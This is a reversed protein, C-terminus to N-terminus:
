FWFLVRVLDYRQGAVEQGLGLRETVQGARRRPDLLSRSCTKGAASRMVRLPRQRAVRHGKPLASCMRCWTSARDREAACDHVDLSSAMVRCERPATVMPMVIECAGAAM